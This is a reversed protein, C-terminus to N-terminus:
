TTAEILSSVATMVLIKAYANWPPPMLVSLLTMVARSVNGPMNDPHSPTSVKM